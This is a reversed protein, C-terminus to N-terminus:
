VSVCAKDVLGESDEEQPPFNRGEDVPFSGVLGVLDNCGFDLGEDVLEQGQFLFCSLCPPTM